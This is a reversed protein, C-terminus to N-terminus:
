IPEDYEVEKRKFKRWRYVKPLKRWAIVDIRECCNDRFVRNDDIAARNPLYVKYGDFVSERRRDVWIGGRDPAHWWYLDMVMPNEIKGSLGYKVTCQYWGEQKPQRRPYKRWFNFVM